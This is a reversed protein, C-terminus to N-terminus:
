PKCGDLSCGLHAAACKHTANHKAAVKYDTLTIRKISIEHRHVGTLKEPGDLLVRNADIVDIITALKGADPGYSILVVRGIEVFRKFLTMAGALLPGCCGMLLRTRWRHQLLRGPRRREPPVPAARPPRRCKCCPAVRMKVGLGLGLVRGLWM